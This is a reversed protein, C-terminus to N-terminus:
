YTSDASRLFLAFLASAVLTAVLLGALWLWRDNGDVMTMPVILGILFFGLIWARAPLPLFVLAFAALSEVIVGAPVKVLTIIVSNLLYTSVGQNWADSFNAWRLTHPLAFAGYRSFDAIDRMAVLALIIVPTLWLAAAASLATHPGVRRLM